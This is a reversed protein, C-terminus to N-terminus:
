IERRKERQSRKVLSGCNGGVGNTKELKLASLIEDEGIRVCTTRKVLFTVGQM